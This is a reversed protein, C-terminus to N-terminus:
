NMDRKFLPIIILLISLFIIVSGSIFTIKSITNTHNLLHFKAFIYTWDHGGGGVLSLEHRLADSMYISVNLLNEGTWFLCLYSSFFQSTKFFYISISLPWFIQFLTGGLFGITEGFSSMFVHGAEHFCLNVYDLFSYYNKHTLFRSYYYILILSVVIRICNSGKKM